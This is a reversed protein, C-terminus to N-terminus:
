LGLIGIGLLGGGNNGSLAGNLINVSPNIQTNNGSLVPVSVDGVTVDVVDNVAVPVAVLANGVTANAGNNTVTNTHTRVTAVERTHTSASKVSGTSTGTGTTTTCSGLGLDSVTKTVANPTQALANERSPMIASAIPLGVVVAILTIAFTKILQKDAVTLAFTQM